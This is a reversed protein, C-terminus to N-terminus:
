CGSNTKTRRQSLLDLFAELRTIFGAEGAQEDLSFSIVPIGQERSVTPLISQAVIEPTCTFPLVHVVGDFGKRGYLVTDGVSERGHGGVFHKLYPSAAQKMNQNSKLRLPNLVLHEKIWHSIYISRDVEVGMEGLINEIQLNACPELLMYIEGVLGIRLVEKEFNCPVSKLKNSALRAANETDVTSRAAAILQMGEKYSKTTSGTELERPRIKLSLAHLKDMAKIKQWATYIARMVEPWSRNGCLKKIEVGLESLHKQPPELVIMKFNYGLDTLIEKQVQAYYGLRCPGSGGVM